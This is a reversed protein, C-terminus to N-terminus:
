ATMGQRRDSPFVLQNGRNYAELFRDLGHEGGNVARRAAKLDDLLIAKQIKTRAKKIFAALIRAAIEPELARDPNTLLDPLSLLKSFDTYNGKGTLQIFGRGKYKEGDGHANNGLSGRNRYDYLGFKNDLRYQSVLTTMVNGIDRLQSDSINSVDVPRLTNLRSEDEEIPRFGATEARITAYAVLKMKVDILGADNLAQEVLPYYKVVNKQSSSEPFMALVIQLGWPIFEMM